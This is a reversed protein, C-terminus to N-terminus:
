FPLSPLPLSPLGPLGWSPSSEAASSAEGSAGSGQNSRLYKSFPYTYPVKADRLKAVLKYPSCPTSPTALARLQERERCSRNAVSDAAYRPQDCRSDNTPNDKPIGQINLRKGNIYATGIEGRPDEFEVKEVKCVEISGDICQNLLEKLDAYDITSIASTPLADESALQTGTGIDGLLLSSSSSMLAPPEAANIGCPLSLTSLMVALTATLIASKSSTQFTCHAPTHRSLRPISGCGEVLAHAGSFSSSVVLM